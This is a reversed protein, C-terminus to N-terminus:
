FSANLSIHIKSNSFRFPQNESLGNAYNLKLLGSKTAFGLGFGFGFL